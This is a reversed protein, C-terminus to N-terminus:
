NLVKCKSSVNVTTIGWVTLYFQHWSQLFGNLINEVTARNYSRLGSATDKQYLVKTVASRVVSQNWLSSPAAGIRVSM